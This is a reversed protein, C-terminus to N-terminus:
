VGRRRYQSFFFYSFGMLFVVPAAYFKLHLFLPEAILMVILLLFLGFQLVNLGVSTAIPLTHSKSAPVSVVVLSLVSIAIGVALLFGIALEQETQQFALLMLPTSLAYMTAAPAIAVLLAYLCRASAGM